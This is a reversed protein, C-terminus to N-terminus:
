SQKCYISESFSSSKYKLKNRIQKSRQLLCITHFLSRKAELDHLLMIAISGIHPEHYFWSCSCVLVYQHCVSSMRTCVISIRIFNSYMCIRNIHSHYVLVYSHCVSSTCTYVLSMHIVYSHCVYLMCTCILPMGYFILLHSQCVFSMCPCVIPRANCIFINQHCLFSMRTCVLSM